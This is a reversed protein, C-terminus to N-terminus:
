NNTNDSSKFNALFISRTTIVPIPTELGNPQLKVLKQSPKSEPSDPTFDSSPLMYEPNIVLIPAM